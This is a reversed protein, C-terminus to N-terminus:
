ELVYNAAMEEDKFADLAKKADKFSFGLDM